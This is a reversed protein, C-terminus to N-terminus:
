VKKLISKWRLVNLDKPNNSPKPLIYNEKFDICCFYKKHVPPLEDALKKSFVDIYEIYDNPIKEYDVNELYGDLFEDVFSSSEDKVLGKVYNL